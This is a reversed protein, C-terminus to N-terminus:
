KSKLSKRLESVKRGTDEKTHKKLEVSRCFLVPGTMNGKQLLISAPHINVPQQQRRRGLMMTALTDERTRDQERWTFAQHQGQVSFKSPYSGRGVMGLLKRGM